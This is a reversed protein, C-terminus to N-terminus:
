GEFLLFNPDCVDPLVSPEEEMLNSFEFKDPGLIVDKGDGTVMLRLEGLPRQTALSVAQWHPLMLDARDEGFCRWQHYASSEDGSDHLRLAVRSLALASQAPGAPSSLLELLLSGLDFKQLLAIEKETMLRVFDNEPNSILDGLQPVIFAVDRWESPFRVGGQPQNGDLIPWYFYTGRTGFEWTDEVVRIECEPHSGVQWPHGEIVSVTTGNITKLASQTNSWDALLAFPRQLPLFISGSVGVHFWGRGEQFSVPRTQCRLNVESYFDDRGGALVEDIWPIAENRLDELWKESVGEKPRVTQRDVALQVQNTPWLDFECSLCNLHFEDVDDGMADRVTPLNVQCAIGEWAFVNSTKVELDTRFEQEPHPVLSRGKELEFFPLVLRINGDPLKSNKIAFRLSSRAQVLEGPYNRMREELEKKRLDVENGKFAELPEKWTSQTLMRWDEETKVWGTSRKWNIQDGPVNETKFEFRCPIRILTQKLYVLLDNAFKAPEEIKRLKWILRTGGSSFPSVQLKRLEGFSGVGRTHFTWGPADNDGCLQSRTTTIEVEDALMFYSLVGIGFQGTRALRFGAAQSRRELDLIDHRRNNGSVLLHNTILARTLGVGSDECILLWEDHDGPRLILTVKEQNGLTKEHSRDAPNDTKPDLLLRAIKERVADFANQLLERVAVLPNGYLQEGSLLQLLRATDPRFAGDIYEYSDNAPRIDRVVAPALHWDRRIPKGGVKCEIPLQEGFGAIGHLEHDIADALDSLAKHIAASRPRAQFKLRDGQLVVTLAHDKQWHILSRARDSIARHRYLVEPTREPDNELIDALRLLCALYRLHVVASDAGHGVHFPDFDPHRLRSFDWHHSSCLRVLIDVFGPIHEFGQGTLNERIWEASWDNHRERVYFTTLEDALNLDNLTSTLPLTVPKGAPYEDLFKQFLDKEDGTLGTTHGFLHRHHALVKNREPTMGIDHGYAALLLLALEHDSLNKQIDATILQMMREAVRFSHDADHLTFDQPSTGGQRLLRELHRM